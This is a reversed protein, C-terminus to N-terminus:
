IMSIMDYMGNIIPASSLGLILCLASGFSRELNSRRDGKACIQDLFAIQREAGRVGMIMRELWPGAHRKYTELEPDEPALLLRSRTLDPLLQELLGCTMERFSKARGFSRVFYFRGGGAGRLGKRGQELRELPLDLARCTSRRFPRKPCWFHSCFAPPLQTLAM